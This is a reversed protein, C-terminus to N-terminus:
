ATESEDENPRDVFLFQAEVVGASDKAKAYEELPEADMTLFHAGWTQSALIDEAQERAGLICLAAALAEVTSLKFPKGFNVPNVPVLYPLARKNDGGVDPISEPQNWSFDLAVIGGAKALDIDEKSLAKREQRLNDLECRWLAYIAGFLYDLSQTAQPRFQLRHCLFYAPENLLIFPRFVLHPLFQFAAVPFCQM